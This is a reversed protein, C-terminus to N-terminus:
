QREYLTEILQHETISTSVQLRWKLGGSLMFGWATFSVPIIIIDHNYYLRHNLSMRGM